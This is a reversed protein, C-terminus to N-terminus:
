STHSLNHAFDQLLLFLFFFFYKFIVLERRFKLSFWSQNYKNVIYLSYLKLFDVVFYETSDNEFYNNSHVFFFTLCGGHKKSIVFSVLIV